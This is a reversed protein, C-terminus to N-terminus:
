LLKIESESLLSRVFAYGIASENPYLLPYNEIRFRWIFDTIQKPFRFFGNRSEIDRLLWEWDPAASKLLGVTTNLDIVPSLILHSM